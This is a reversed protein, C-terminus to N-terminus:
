PGRRGGAGRPQGVGDRLPQPRNAAGVVGRGARRRGGGAEGGALSVGSRRFSSGPRSAWGSPMRTAVTSASPSNSVWSPWAAVSSRSRPATPSASAVNWASRSARPTASRTSVNTQDSNPRRGIALLDPPVSWPAPPTAQTWPGRARPPIRVSYGDSVSRSASFFRLTVTSKRRTYPLRSPWHSPVSGASTMGPAACNPWTASTRQHEGGVVGRRRGHADGARRDGDADALALERDGDVARPHMGARQLERDAVEALVDVVEDHAARALADAAQLGGDLGARGRRQAERQPAGAAVLQDAGHGIVLRAAHAGRQAHDALARPYPNRWPWGARGERRGGSARAARRSRGPRGAAGPRAGGGSVSSMSTSTQTTPPPMAPM